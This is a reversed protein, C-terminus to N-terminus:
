GSRDYGSLWAMADPEATYVDLTLGFDAAVRCGFKQPHIHTAHAVLAVVVMGEAKQAWEEAALFRDVLTPIPVDELGTCVVMLRELSRERCRTVIASVRDVADVLSSKGSLRSEAIGNRVEFSERV